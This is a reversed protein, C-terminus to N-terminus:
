SSALVECGYRLPPYSLWCRIQVTIKAGTPLGSGVLTGSVKGGKLPSLNTKHPLTWAGNKLLKTTVTADVTFETSNKALNGTVKATCKVQKGSASSKGKASLYVNGANALPVKGTSMCQATAAAKHPSAAGIAAPIVSGSGVAVGIVVAFVAFM